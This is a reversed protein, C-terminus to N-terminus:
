HRSFINLFYRLFWILQIFHNQISDPRQTVNTIATLLYECRTRSKIWGIQDPRCLGCPLCHWKHCPPLKEVSQPSYSGVCLACSDTQDTQSVASINSIASLYSSVNNTLIFLHYQLRVPWVRVKHTAELTLPPSLWALLQWSKRPQLFLYFDWSLLSKNWFPM